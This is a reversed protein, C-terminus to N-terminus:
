GAALVDKSFLTNEDTTEELDLLELEFGSDFFLFDFPVFL